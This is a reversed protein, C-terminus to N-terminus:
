AIEIPFPLVEDLTRKGAAIMVLRDFGLAVGYCPPLGAEMAAILRSDEPLMQKGDAQRAENNQRNRARLVAADQLEYYGNALEIGGIYLEFRQAVPPDGAVVALAAQSAPYDYLIAPGDIGLKPEVLEALLFNLWSDRDSPDWQPAEPQLQRARQVLQENSARHPDIGAHERFAEAYSLQRIPGCGLLHQILDALRQRGGCYDVGVEYWELMTFEPNHLPGREGARFARTIQYISRGTAAVLRKMAFEPSTQLWYRPGEDPRSPDSYLIASLPDLHRDVVIDQSLVPTEVELLGHQDFFERTRRLLAARLALAEWSARPRFDPSAHNM